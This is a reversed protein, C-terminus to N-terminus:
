NACRATFKLPIVSRGVRYSFAPAATSPCSCEMTAAYRVSPPGSSGEKGGFGAAYAYLNTPLYSAFKRMLVAHYVSMGFPDINSQYYGNKKM